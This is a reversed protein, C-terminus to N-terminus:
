CGNYVIVNNPSNPNTIRDWNGDNIIADKVRAPTFNRNQHLVVAALGAVHPCAMSTGSMTAYATNSTIGCSYINSGPAFVDVCTGYNSFSSRIDRNQADTSTAGVTIASPTSAPSYECADYNDNGAAVATTVGSSVLSAVANNMAANYAGGLSMSAVSPVGRTRATTACYNIGSIVGSNTGSGQGNLVRVAVLRCDRAIGVTSGGITGACHTGHGNNDDRLSDVYNAGWVARGEFEQHTLKIGTDIVYVDVGNGSGGSNWKYTTLAGSTIAGYHSVRCIGWSRVNTQTSDCTQQKGYMHVVTDHHVEKVTPDELVYELQAADLTAAYGMFDKTINYNAFVSLGLPSQHKQQAEDSITPHYIVIYQGDIKEPHDAALIPARACALTIFLALLLYM